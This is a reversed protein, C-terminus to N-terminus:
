LAVLSDLKLPQPEGVKRAVFAASLATMIAYQNLQEQSSGVLQLAKPEEGQVCPKTVVDDMAGMHSTVIGEM